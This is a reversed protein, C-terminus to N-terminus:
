EVKVATVSNKNYYRARDINRQENLNDSLCMNILPYRAEMEPVQVDQETATTLIEHQQKRVQAYIPLEGSEIYEMCYQNTTTIESLYFTVGLVAIGIVWGAAKIVLKKKGSINLNWTRKRKEQKKQIWGHVYVMNVFTILLFIHFYTNPVGGSVDSRSYIEPTYTAWYVGNMYIVVLLPFKFQLTEKNIRKMEIWLLVALLLFVVTTVANELFYDEGLYIGRDIAYYICKVAWKLDADFEEGGRVNNGPSLFSIVLGVIEALFALLIWLNSYDYKIRLIKEKLNWEVVEIKSLLLLVVTLTAALPALYSGGGLLTFCLFLIGYDKKRKNELFKHSHVIAFVGLLFPVSYHMVGNFWYIGSTTRPIYQIMLFLIMCVMIATTSKRFKLRKVLYYDALYSVSAILMGLSLFVTIVYGGEVFHNPSLTFLFMTFWTGQWNNYFEAVMRCSGKLAGLLGSEVWGRYTYIGYWYDDGTAYNFLGVYLIPLLSLAFLVAVIIAPIWMKDKEKTNKM